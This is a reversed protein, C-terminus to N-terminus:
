EQSSRILGRVFQIAGFIIAGWAIVYVGGGGSSALLYSLSTVLVGGLCWAGGAVMNKRANMVDAQVKAQKLTGVVVAAAQADLGRETLSLEVQAPTVGQNLQDTAIHYAEAQALQETSPPPPPQADVNKRCAPCIRGAMPLVRTACHPCEVLVSM